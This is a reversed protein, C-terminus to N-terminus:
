FNENGVSLNLGFFFDTSKRERLIFTMQFIVVHAGHRGIHGIFGVYLEHFARNNPKQTQTSWLQVVHVRLGTLFLEPSPNLGSVRWGSYRNTQKELANLEEWYRLLKRNGIFM